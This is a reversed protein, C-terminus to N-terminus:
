GVAVDFPYEWGTSEYQGDILRGKISCTVTIRYTGLEAHKFFSNIEDRSVNWYEEGKNIRFSLSTGNGATKYGIKIAAGGDFEIVPVNEAWVAGAGDGELWGGEEDRYETTWLFYADPYITQNECKVTLYVPHKGNTMDPEIPEASDSSQEYVYNIDFPYEYCGERTVGDTVSKFDAVAIFRYVGPYSSTLIDCIDDIDFTGDRGAMRCKVTAEMGDAYNCGYLIKFDKIDFVPINDMDEYDKSTISTQTTNETKGDNVSEWILYSPLYESKNGCTIRLNVPYYGETESDDIYTESDDIYYFDFPYEYCGKRTVGDSLTEFEAVAILRYINGRAYYSLVSQIEDMDFLGEEGALRCKVTAEMGDEPTYYWQFDLVASEFVTVNDLDKYESHHGSAYTIRETEGDNESEWKMYSQLYRDRGGCSIRLHVPYYGKNVETEETVDSNNVVTESNENLSPTSSSAVNQAGIREFLKLGIFTGGCVLVAVLVLGAAYVAPKKFFSEKNEKEKYKINIFGPDKIDNKVGDFRKQLLEETKNFDGNKM